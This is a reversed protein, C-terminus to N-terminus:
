YEIKQCFYSSKKLIISALLPLNQSQMNLFYNFIAQDHNGSKLTHTKVNTGKKLADFLTEKNKVWASLTIKPVNYRAAINKNSEAKEPDKHAQCKKRLSKHTSKRKGAVLM